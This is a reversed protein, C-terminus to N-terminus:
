VKRRTRKKGQGVIKRKGRRGMVKHWEENEKGMSSTRVPPQNEIQDEYEGEKNRGTSRKGERASSELKEGRQEQISGKRRENEEKRNREFEARMIGLKKDILEELQEILRTKNRANSRKKSPSLWPIAESDETWQM